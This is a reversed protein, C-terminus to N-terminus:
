EKPSGRARARTPPHWADSPETPDSLDSLNSLDSRHRMKLETWAIEIELDPTQLMKLDRVPFRPAWIITLNTLAQM